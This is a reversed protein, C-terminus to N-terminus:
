QDTIELIPLPVRSWPSYPMAISYEKRYSDAPLDYIKGWLLCILSFLSKDNIIKSEISNEAHIVMTHHRNFKRAIAPYSSGNIKRTLYMAIHRAEVSKKGRRKSLLEGLDVGTEECVIKQIAIITPIYASSDGCRITM